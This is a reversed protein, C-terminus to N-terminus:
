EIGETKNLEIVHDAYKMVSEQHTIILITMHKKLNHIVEMVKTENDKDLANTSEDLILLSPKKLLTRALVLRQREGGSLSVGEDGIPTDIGKPLQKVFDCSAMELAKNLEEAECNTSFLSLNERISGNIIFPDQPIYGISKRWTGIMEEDIIVDDVVIRGEDLRILGLILDAITTKGSGSHGILATIKNAPLTFHVNRLIQSRDEYSFSVDEFVLKNQIQLTTEKLVLKEKEVVAGQEINHIQEFAPLMSIIHHITVQLNSFRPWMRAFLLTVVVMQEGEIELVILSLYIIMSIAFAATIKFWLNIKTNERHLHLVNEKIEGSLLQFGKIYEKEATNSKVEKMGRFHENINAFYSQMFDSMQQGIKQANSVVGKLLLAMMVGCGIVILTIKVSVIFSLTLQIIIFIMSAFFQLIFTTGNSVRMLETTLLHHFDSKRQKILFSWKAQILHKYLRSRLSHALEQVVQMQLLQHYRSIISQASIIVVYFVLVLILLYSKPIQEILLTITQLLSSDGVSGFSTIGTVTLLPFIILVGVGELLSVLVMIFILYYLKKGSFRYLEEIYNKVQEIM